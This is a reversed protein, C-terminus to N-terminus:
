ACRARLPIRCNGVVVQSLRCHALQHRELRRHRLLECDISAGKDADDCVSCPARSSRSSGCVWVFVWRARFRVHSAIHVVLQAAYALADGGVPSVISAHGGLAGLMVEDLPQEPESADGLLLRALMEAIAKRAWRPDPAIMAARPGGGRATTCRVAATLDPSACPSDPDLARCGGPVRGKPIFAAYSRNPDEPPEAGAALAMAIDDLLM